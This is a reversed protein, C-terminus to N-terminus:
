NWLIGGKFFDFDRLRLSRLPFVCLECLASNIHKLEANIVLKFLLINYFSVSLDVTFDGGVGVVHRGQLSAGESFNGV